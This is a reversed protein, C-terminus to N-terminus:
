QLNAALFKELTRYYDAIKDNEYLDDASFPEFFTTVSRGDSRLQKAFREAQQVTPYTGTIPETGHAIFVPATIRDAQNFLSLQEFKERDRGITGILTSLREYSGFQGYQGRFVKIIEKWEFIGHTSIIARFLEPESAAATFALYSGVVNGMVAVHDPKFLGTKLVARTADCIDDSMQNFDWTTKDPIRYGSSGRYNIQMVAYGRSALFQTDRSYNWVFRDRPGGHAVVVLPVPSDKSAGAPLTLYGELRAGDRTKCSFPRTPLLTDSKLWPAVQGLPIIKQAATDAIFYTGPQRDSYSIFAFKTGTRDQSILRNDTDPHAQDIGAQLNAFDANFWVTKARRQQYRLGALTGDKESFILTGDSIDYTPDTYIPPDTIGTDLHHLRLAFGHDPDDEVVWLRNSDAEIGMPFFRLFDLAVAIWSKHDESLRHIAYRGEHNTICLVLEDFSNTLYSVFEGDPVDPYEEKTRGQHYGKMAASIDIEYAGYTGGRCLLRHSQRRPLGMITGNWVVKPETLDDMPVAFLRNRGHDFVSVRFLLDRNDLWRVWDPNFTRKGRIAKVENNDLNTLLLGRYKGDSVIAATHHGDPSLEVWEMQPPRVLDDIPIPAAKLGLGTALFFAVLLPKM